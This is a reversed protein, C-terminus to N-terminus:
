HMTPRQDMPVISEPAPPRYGLASHPQRAGRSTDGPGFRGAAELDAGPDRDEVEVPGSEAAEANRDKYSAFSMSHRPLHGTCTQFQTQPFTAEIARPFGKISDVVAILINQVGRQAPRRPGQGSVAPGLRGRDWRAPHGFRRIRGTNSVQSHRGPDRGHLRDSIMAGAASKALGDGRGDGRSIASIPSPATEIGEIGHIAEIQGQSERITMGRAYLGLIRPDVEPLRRRDKAIPIPDFCGNRHRPIDPLVKGSETAVTKPSSGNRRNPLPNGGEPLAEACKEARKEDLHEDLEVRV